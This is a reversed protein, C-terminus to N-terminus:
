SKVPKRKLKKPKTQEREWAVAGSSANEDALRVVAANNPLYTAQLEKNQDITNAMKAAMVAPSADGAIM